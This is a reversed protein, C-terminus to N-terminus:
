VHVAPVVGFKGVWLHLEVQFEAALAACSHWASYYRLLETFSEYALAATNSM